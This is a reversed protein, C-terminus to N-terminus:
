IVVGQPRPVPHEIISQPARRRDRVQVKGVQDDEIWKPHRAQLVRPVAASMAGAPRM